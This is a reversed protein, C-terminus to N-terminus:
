TVGIGYTIFLCSNLGYVYLSPLQPHRQVVKWFVFLAISSLLPALKPCWHTMCVCFLRDNNVQEQLEAERQQTAAAQALQAELSLIHDHSDDLARTLDSGREEAAALAEAAQEADFQASM